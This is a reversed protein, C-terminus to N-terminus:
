KIIFKAYLKLSVGDQPEIYQNVSFDWKNLFNEESYWGDFVCGDKSPIPPELIYQGDICDDMWYEVGDVIYTLNAIVLTSSEPVFFEQYWDYMSEFVVFKAGATSALRRNILLKRNEMLKGEQKDMLFITKNWFIDYPSCYQLTAPLYIKDFYGELTSSWGIQAMGIAIVPLGNITEPIIVRDWRKKTEIFNLVNVGIASEKSVFRNSTASKVYCCNFEKYDFDYRPPDKLSFSCGVFGFCMFGALLCYSLLITSIIKIKYIKINIM